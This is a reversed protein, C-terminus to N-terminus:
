LSDDIQFLNDQLNNLTVQDFHLKAYGHDDYNILIAKVPGSYNLTTVNTLEVEDSIVIDKIIYPKYSNDYLALDIM